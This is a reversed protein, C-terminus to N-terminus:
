ENFNVPQTARLTANGSADVSFIRFTVYGTGEQSFNIPFNNVSTQPDNIVTTETHGEQRTILLHVHETGEPV